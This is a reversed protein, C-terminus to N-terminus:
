MYSSRKSCKPTRNEDSEHNKEKKRNPDCDKVIGEVKVGEEVIAQEHSSSIDREYSGSDHSPSNM